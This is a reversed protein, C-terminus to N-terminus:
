LGYATAHNDDLGDEGGDLLNVQTDSFTAQVEDFGGDIYNIAFDTFPSQLQNEGGEVVISESAAESILGNKLKLGSIYIVDSEKIILDSTNMVSVNRVGPQVTVRDSNVISIRSTNALVKNDNGIITIQQSTEHVNNNAGDIKIDNMKINFLSGNALPGGTAKTPGNTAHLVGVPLPNVGDASNVAFNGGNGTQLTGSFRRGPLSKIFQVKTTADGFPDYDLVAYLRCYHYNGDTGNFLYLKSFDLNYIDLATLKFYGTILRSAKSTIEELYKSYYKNYLTANTTQLAVAGDFSKDYYNSKVDDGFNLSNEPAFMDDNMNFSQVTRRTVVDAAGSQNIHTWLGESAEAGNYFLIRINTKMPAQSKNDVLWPFSPKGAYASATATSTFMVQIDKQGSLFDNDFEVKHYGYPSKHDKSYLNIFDQSLYDSDPTYTFNYTKAELEAIPKIEVTKSLDLKQSWDTVDDTIFDERPEIILNKENEPDPVLFLNFMKIISSLFDSMKIGKPIMANMSLTEGEVLGNNIYENKFVFQQNIKIYAMGGFRRYVPSAVTDQISLFASNAPTYAGTTNGFWTPRTQIADYELSSGTIATDFKDFHYTTTTNIDSFLGNVSTFPGQVGNNSTPGSAFPNYYDTTGTHPKSHFCTYASTDRIKPIFIYRVYIVDGSRVVTTGETKFGVTSTSQNTATVAIPENVPTSSDLNLNSQGASEGTALSTSCLEVTAGDAARYHMICIRSDKHLQVNFYVPHSPSPDTGPTIVTLPINTFLTNPSGATSYAQTSPVTYKVQGATKVGEFVWNLGATASFTYTGGDQCFWESVTIDYGGTNDDIIANYLTNTTNPGVQFANQALANEYSIQTKSGAIVDTYTTASFLKAEVQEASLVPFPDTPPIVLKKFINSNFFDSTYTFGAKQFIRDIYEKVYVAPLIDSVRWSPGPVVSYGITGPRGSSTDLWTQKGTNALFYVYGEGTPYGGSFNSYSTGDKIISAGWSNVQNAETFDHDYMSLDIDELRTDGIESFVDTISSYLSVNYEIDKVDLSISDLKLIGVFQDVGNKRLVVNMKKGPDFSLSDFDENIDGTNKIKGGSELQYIHKFIRNNRPTGPLTITKSFSGRRDEPKSIDDVLYNLSWLVDDKLDLETDGNDYYEMVSIDTFYMKMIHGSNVTCRISIDTSTATVIGEFTNQFSFGNSVSKTVGNTGAYVGFSYSATSFNSVSFNSIKFRIKYRTGITLLNAPHTATYSTNYITATTGGSTNDFEVIGGATPTHTYQMVPGPGVTTFLNATSLSYKISPVYEKLTGPTIDRLFLRTEM